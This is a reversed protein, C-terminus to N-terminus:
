TLSACWSNRKMNFTSCRSSTVKLSKFVIILCIILTGWPEVVALGIGVVVVARELGWPDVVADGGVLGKTEVVFIAKGLGHPEVVAAGRGAGESCCCSNEGM